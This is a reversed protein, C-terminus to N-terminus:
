AAVKQPVHKVVIEALEDIVCDLDVLMDPYADLPFHHLDFIVVRTPDRTDYRCQFVDYVFRRCNFMALYARWQYSDTYREAEFRESLKYDRVTRGHLADVKGVLTVPGSPTMWPKEAKLERIAPVFLEGEIQFDFRYGDQELVHVDTVALEELAKHFARSALMQHSPEAVGSLEAVLEEITSDERAAWYRYTELDSVSLRIV